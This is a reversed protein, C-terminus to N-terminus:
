ELMFNNFIGLLRIVGWYGQHLEQFNFSNHVVTNTPSVCEDLGLKLVNKMVKCKTIKNLCLLYNLHFLKWIGLQSPASELYVM